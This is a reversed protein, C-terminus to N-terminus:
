LPKCSLVREETVIFNMPMDHPAVPVAPVVQGEFCLGVAVVDGRVRALLGDYYGKGYGLRGGHADFALGPVVVLDVQEPRLLRHTPRRAPSPELIGWTGPTLEDFSDFRWLGLEPGDCFPIAVMKTRACYEVAAHTVLEEGISVYWAIVAAARYAPLMELRECASRSAGPRDPHARRAARARQRLAGKHLEGSKGKSRDNM